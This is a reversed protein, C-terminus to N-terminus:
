CIRPLQEAYPLDLLRQTGYPSRVCSLARGDEIVRGICAANKGLPHAHFIKLAAECDKEPLALLLKGENAVYLPDMGLINSAAAVASSVPLNEEDIEISLGDGAWENVVSAVGGRTPDRMAHIDPLGEQLAEALSHLPAVDSEIAPDFGLEERAALICLGHNGIEGSILIRDGAQIKQPYADKGDPFLGVGATSIYIGDGRGKEVVKTDGTVLFVGAEKAAQAMSSCILRLESIPLGAELIMSVSLYVPKAGSMCLDNVTGCVALRGIDGGPFFRPHVVYGDTTMALASASVPCIASDNLQRLYANDFAPLFVDHVLEQYLRGGGGHALSIFEEKLEM